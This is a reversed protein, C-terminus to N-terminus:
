KNVELSEEISQLVKLIISSLLVAYLQFHFLVFYFVLYTSFVVFCKTHLSSTVSFFNYLGERFKFLTFIFTLFM